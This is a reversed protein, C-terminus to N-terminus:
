IRWETILNSPCRNIDVRWKCRKSRWCDWEGFRCSCMSELLTRCSWHDRPRSSHISQVLLYPRWRDDYRSSSPSTHAFHLLIVDTSSIMTYIPNSVPCTSGIFFVRQSLLYRSHFSVRLKFIYWRTFSLATRHFNMRAESVIARYSAKLTHVKHKNALELTGLFRNTM